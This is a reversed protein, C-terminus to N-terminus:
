SSKVTMGNSALAQLFASYLETKASEAASFARENADDEQPTMKNAPMKTDEAVSVTPAFVMPSYTTIAGVTPSGQSSSKQEQQPPTAPAAVQNSAQANKVGAAELALRSNEMLTALAFARHQEHFHRALAERAAAAEASLTANNKVVNLTAKDTSKSVVNNNCYVSGSTDSGSTLDSEMNSTTSAPMKQNRHTIMSPIGDGNIHKHSKRKKLPLNRVNSSSSSSSTHGGATSVTVTSSYPRKEGLSVSKTSASSVSMMDESQVSGNLAIKNKAKRSKQCVMSRCLEPYDRQFLDHSFAGADGGRSVQKFGWRNLKRTFSPYKPTTSSKTSSTGNETSIYRPLVQTTFVDPNLVVFAKGHPLWSVVDSISTDALIAHLRMPFTEKNTEAISSYFARSSALSTSLSEPTPSVNNNNLPAAPQTDLGAAVAAARLAQLHDQIKPVCSTDMDDDADSINHTSARRSQHASTTVTYAPITTSAAATSMVQQSSSSTFNTSMTSPASYDASPYLQTLATAAEVLHLLGSM